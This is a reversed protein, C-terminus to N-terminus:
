SLKALGLHEVMMLSLSSLVKSIRLCYFHILGETQNPKYDCDNEKDCYAYFIVFSLPSKRNNKKDKRGRFDM